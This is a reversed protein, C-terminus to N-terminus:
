KNHLAKEEKYFVGNIKIDNTYIIIDYSTMPWAGEWVRYLSSMRFGVKM